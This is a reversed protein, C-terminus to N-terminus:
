VRNLTLRFIRSREFQTLNSSVGLVLVDCSPRGRHLILLAENSVRAAVAKPLEDIKKM